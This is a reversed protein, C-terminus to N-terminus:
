TTYDYDAEIILKGDEARNVDVSIYELEEGVYQPSFENFEVELAIRAGVIQEITVTQQPQFINIRQPWRGWVTGRLGLYTYESAMLINRVLRVVRQAEESAVQDGAKHGAGDAESKGTAICDINFIGIAKQRTKVNGASKDFNSNDYWVNVVPTTYQDDGTFNEFPNNRETYVSLKWQDPDKAAATALAQQSASEYAIIYAIQDRIIEFNDQKDILTQIM